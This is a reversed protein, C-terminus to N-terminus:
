KKICFPYFMPVRMKYEAYDHGLRKLLEPEEINKLEWVNIMIFLPTFIFVLSISGLTIGLGFLQIFLGSLMPNRVFRYPGTTVLAPPPSFPVPTGKMRIFYLISLLMLFLGSVILCMGFILSWPHLIAVPFHLSKDAAFSLVAFLVILSLYFAGVIPVLVLRTKWSGTAIKYILDIWKGTFSM